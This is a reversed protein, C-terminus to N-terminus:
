EQSGQEEGVKAQLIEAKVHASKEVVESALSALSPSQMIGFISVDAAAQHALMNRLEVAVLSDVGYQSPHKSADIDEVPIMFIDALKQAIARGVMEEAELRSTAEVLKAALSDQGNQQQSQMQQGQGSQRHWRLAQFRADRGLQSAGDSDWHQGLGGNLGVVIQPHFPDLIASEIVGLVKEEALLMHGAKEMRGAVGATEAVYGVGKVAGLDISVAPLGHSVRWRALADEYAGGASYNSQSAYGVIGAVSSLIVFFDLSSAAQFRQHLNWTGNVKPLIAAQYDDITMQEFISDQLFMAAQVVGKIPPFGDKNCSDLATALSDADSVDCSVAKARCGADELQRVLEQAVESTGASRSMLILNRAGRSVMWNALSRGIGGAGGVLLYSAHRSLRAKNGSSPLVPVMEDPGASLVVKGMHKGAQLLRFAKSVEAMPYATVPHVPKVMGAAVLRAVEGLVRHVEERRLRSVTLLDFSSFSTQRTFPRMELWSNQELDRKGIEVFHGFPALVNFSEQLLPGALSNLVVDVGRGGTAALVGAAFSTDRSSFVREAPVGYREMVLEKKEGTGVTVFVEAGLYTAVMVAAQGVGGAAAHVLVTMGKGVRAIDVLCMWATAFVVPLGAAEEFGVGEPMKVVCRWDVKVKGAFGAGATLGMVRDGVVLGGERAANGGVRTVVGACELGMVREDLQGMAVMVDRFNVGYAQPAVELM